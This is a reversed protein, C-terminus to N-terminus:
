FPRARGRWGVCRFSKECKGMESRLVDRAATGTSELYPNEPFLEVRSITMVSELRASAVRNSGSIDAEDACVMLYLRHFVPFLSGAFATLEPSPSHGKSRGCPTDRFAHTSSESHLLLQLTEPLDRLCTGSMAPFIRARMTVSTQPSLEAGQATATIGPPAHSGGSALIRLPLAGADGFRLLTRRGNRM